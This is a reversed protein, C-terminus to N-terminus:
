FLLAYERPKYKVPRNKMSERPGQLDRSSYRQANSFYTKTYKNVNTKFYLHMFNYNILSDRHM